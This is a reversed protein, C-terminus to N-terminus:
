LSAAESQFNTRRQEDVYRELWDDIESEVFTLKKGTLLIPRPFDPRKRLTQVTTRSCGLRKCLQNISLLRKTM